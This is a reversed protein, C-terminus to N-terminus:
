DAVRRAEEAFPNYERAVRLEYLGSELAIEGHENAATQILASPNKVIAYIIQMGAPVDNVREMVDADPPLVHHHGKESHSIIHNGDGDKEVAKAEIEPIADVRFIRVEGQAGIMTRKM